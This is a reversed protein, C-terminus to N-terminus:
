GGGILKSCITCDIKIDASICSPAVAGFPLLGSHIQHTRPLTDIHQAHERLLRLAVRGGSLACSRSLASNSSRM